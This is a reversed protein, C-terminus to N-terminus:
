QHVVITCASKNNPRTKAAVPDRTFKRKDLRGSCASRSKAECAVLVSSAGANYWSHTPTIEEWCTEFSAENRSGIGTFGDIQRRRGFEPLRKQCRADRM